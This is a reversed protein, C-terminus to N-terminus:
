ILYYSNLGDILIENKDMIEENDFDNLYNQTVSISSHGLSKSLLFMDFGNRRAHYSFTHRAEHFSFENIELLIKLLQPLDYSLSKKV